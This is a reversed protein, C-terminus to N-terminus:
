RCSAGNQTGTTQAADAQGRLRRILEAKSNDLAVSHQRALALATAAQKTLLQAGKHAKRDHLRVSSLGMGTSGDVIFTGPPLPTPAPEGGVHQAAM